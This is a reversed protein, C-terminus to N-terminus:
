SAYPIENDHQNLFADYQRYLQMTLRGPAGNGIARGDIRVVPLVHASTSTLFAERARSVDDPTFPTERVVIQAARAMELVRARVIGPLIQTGLPHTQLEGAENVIFSNSASGETIVGAANVLWAERAGQNASEQRAMINPLLAISKIDCRGWRQDPLTIVSVGKEVAVASPPKAPLLSMTLRPQLDVAYLHDRKAAGRTVQVYLLGNRRGNRRLLEAVVAQLSAMSMPLPIGLGALSAELRQWHRTADILRAERLEIVEYIGDAFQHGRDEMPVSAQTHAVFQGDVYAIRTM